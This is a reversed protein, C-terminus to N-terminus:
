SQPGCPVLPPQTRISGLPLILEFPQASSATTSPHDAAGSPEAPQRLARPRAVRSLWALRATEPEKVALQCSWNRLRGAQAPAQGVVAVGVEREIQPARERARHAVALRQELPRHDADAVGRAPEVVAMAQQGLQDRRDLAAHERRAAKRELERGDREALREEARGAQHEAVEHAHVDLLHDAGLRHIRDDQDAAAVLGHRRQQHARKRGVLRREQHDGSRHHGPAVALRAKAGAGVAPAEPGLVAAPADVLGLDPADLRTEGGGRACARHHARRAGHRAEGLREAHHQRAGRGDRRHVGVPQARALRAAHARDRHRLAAARRRTLDHRGSRDLIREAHQERDAARGVADQMEGRDGAAGADLHRQLAEILQAVPRRHQDVELGGPRVVHLVQERGAPEARHQALELRQQVQLRRRHRTLRQTRAELALRVPDIAAHDPREGLRQDSTPPRTASNPESAGPPAM